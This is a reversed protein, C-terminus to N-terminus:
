FERNFRHTYVIRRNELFAEFSKGCLVFICHYLSNIKKFIMGIIWRKTIMEERSRHRTLARDTYSIIQPDDEDLTSVIYLYEYEIDSIM